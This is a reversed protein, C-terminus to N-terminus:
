SVVLALVLMVGTYRNGEWYTMEDAYIDREGIRVLGESIRLFCSPFFFSVDCDGKEM